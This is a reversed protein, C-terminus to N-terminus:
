RRRHVKTSHIGDKETKDKSTSPEKKPKTSVPAVPTSMTTTDVKLQLMNNHTLLIINYYPM